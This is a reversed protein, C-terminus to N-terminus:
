KNMLWFYVFLYLVIISLDLDGTPNSGPRGLKQDSTYLVMPGTKIAYTTQNNRKHNVSICNLLQTLTFRIYPHTILLTLKRILVKRVRCNAITLNACNFGYLVIYFLRYM